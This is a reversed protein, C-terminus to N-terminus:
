ASNYLQQNTVSLRVTDFKNVLQNVLWNKIPNYCLTWITMWPFCKVKLIEISFLRIWINLQRKSLDLNNIILINLGFYIIFNKKVILLNMALKLHIFSVNWWAEQMCFHYLAKNSCFAIAPYTAFNSGKSKKRWYCCRTGGHYKYWNFEVNGLIQNKLLYEEKVLRMIWVFLHGKTLAM